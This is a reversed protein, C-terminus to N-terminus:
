RYKEELARIQEPTSLEAARAEFESVRKPDVERKRLRGTAEKTATEGGFVDDRMVDFQEGRQRRARDAEEARQVQRDLQKKLEAHDPSGAPLAALQGKLRVVRDRQRKADEAPEKVHQEYFKKPDHVAMEYAEAFHEKPNVRAYNWESGGPIASQDVGWYPTKEMTDPTNNPSYTKRKGWAFSHHGTPDPREKELRAVDNAAVGDHTLAEGTVEQWGAAAKFKEFAAPNAYTATHGLEHTLPLEM